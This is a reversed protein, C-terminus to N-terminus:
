VRVPRGGPRMGVRVVLSHGHGILLRHLQPHAQGLDVGADTVEGAVRPEHGPPRAPRGLGARVEDHEGLHRQGPVRRFVEHQALGEGARALVRQDVQGRGEGPLPQAVDGDDDPVQRVGLATSRGRDVVGRDVVGVAGAVGVGAAAGGAVGGGQEVAALDDDPVVLPV